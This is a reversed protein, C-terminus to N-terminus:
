NSKHLQLHKNIYKIYNQLVIKIYQFIRFQQCYQFIVCFDNLWQSSCCKLLKIQTERNFKLFHPLNSLFTTQCLSTCKRINKHGMVTGGRHITSGVSLAKAKPLSARRSHLASPKGRGLRPHFFAAPIDIGVYLLLFQVIILKM